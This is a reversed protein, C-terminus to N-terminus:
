IAFLIDIEYLPYGGRVLDALENLLREGVEVDARAGSVTLQNGRLHVQVDLHTEIIKLWTVIDRGVSSLLLSAPADTLSLEAM